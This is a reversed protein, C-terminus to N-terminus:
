PIAYGLLRLKAIADDSGYGVLAAWGLAQFTELWDLQAESIERSSGSSRKMEVVAGLTSGPRPTVVVLDPVGAAVGQGRLRAGEGSRRSGGNPVAFFVLRALRLRRVLSAQESSELPSGLFGKEVLRGLILSNGV